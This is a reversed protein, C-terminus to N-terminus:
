PTLLAMWEAKNRKSRGARCRLCEDDRRGIKKEREKRTELVGATSFPFWRCDINVLHLRHFGVVTSPFWDRENTTKRIKIKNRRGCTAM